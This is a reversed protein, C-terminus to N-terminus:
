RSLLIIGTVVAGFLLFLLMAWFFWDDNNANVDGAGQAFSYHRRLEDAIM